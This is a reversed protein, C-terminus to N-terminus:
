CSDEGVRECMSIGLTFSTMPTKGLSGKDLFFFKKNKFSM